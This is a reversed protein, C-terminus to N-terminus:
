TESRTYVIGGAVSYGYLAADNRWKFVGNPEIEEGITAGSDTVTAGGVWISAGTKNQITGVRDTAAALLVAATAAALTVPAAAFTTGDKLALGGGITITGSNILSGSSYESDIYVTVNITVGPQADWYLFAKSFMRNTSVSANDKFLQTSVGADNSNFKVKVIASPDTAQDFVISKFPFGIPFANFETRATTLDITFTQVKFGASQDADKIFAARRLNEQDLIEQMLQDKNGIM